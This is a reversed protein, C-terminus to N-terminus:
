NKASEEVSKRIGSLRSIATSVRLIVTLPLEGVMKEDEDTFLRNGNDDIAGKVVSLVNARETAGTKGMQADIMMAGIPAYEAASLERVRMTQGEGLEPVAVSATKRNYTEAAKLLEAKTIAM